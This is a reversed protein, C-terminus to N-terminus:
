IIALQWCNLEPCHEFTGAADVNVEIDAVVEISACLDSYASISDIGAPARYETTRNNYGEVREWSQERLARQLTDLECYWHEREDYVRIISM